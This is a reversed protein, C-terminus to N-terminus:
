GLNAGIDLVIGEANGSIYKCIKNVIYLEDLEFGGFNTAMVPVARWDEQSISMDIFYNGGNADINELTIFVGEASIHIERLTSTSQVLEIYEFLKSYESFMSKQYSQKDIIGNEFNSRITSFIM